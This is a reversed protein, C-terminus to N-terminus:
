IENMSTVSISVTGNSSVTVYYPGSFSTSLSLSSGINAGTLSNYVQIYTAVQSTFSSGGYFDFASGTPIYIGAGSTGVFGLTGYADLQVAYNFQFGASSSSTGLQFSAGSVVDIEDFQINLVGNLDGTTLTYGSPIYL